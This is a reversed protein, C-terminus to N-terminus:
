KSNMYDQQIMLGSNRMSTLYFLTYFIMGLFLLSGCFHSWVNVSENHMQFLSKFISNFSHNYNIRYGHHIYENDLLHSPAQHRTGVFANYVMMRADEFKESISKSHTIM